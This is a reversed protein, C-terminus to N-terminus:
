ICIPRSEAGFWAVLRATAGGPLKPNNEHRSGISQPSAARALQFLLAVAMCVIPLLLLQKKSVPRLISKVTGFCFM